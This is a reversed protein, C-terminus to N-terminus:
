IVNKLLGELSQKLEKLPYIADTVTKVTEAVRTRAERAEIAMMKANEAEESKEEITLLEKLPQLINNLLEETNEETNLTSM